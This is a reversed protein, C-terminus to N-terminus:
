EDSDSAESTPTNLSAIMMGPVGFILWLMYLEIM